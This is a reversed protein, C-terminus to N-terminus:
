RWKPSPRLINLTCVYVKIYKFYLISVVSKTMCVFAVDDNQPYKLYKFVNSKINM